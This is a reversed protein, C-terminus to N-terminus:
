SKFFVQLILVDISTDVHVVRELPTVVDWSWGSFKLEFM